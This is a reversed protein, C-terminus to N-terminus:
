WQHAVDLVVRSGNPGDLTFVRFPLRARVGVGLTTQGEFSNAWAVQRLTRYGTVDVVEGRNAPAWYAPALVVVQLYAGGRLPVFFGSGDEYVAPVYGVRYGAAPGALDVVIRDFCEHRGSRVATVPSTVMTPNSKDQSGWYIGCYPTAASATPSILGIGAILALMALWVHIRRM